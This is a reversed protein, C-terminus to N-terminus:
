ESDGVNIKITKVTPKKAPITVGLLGNKFNATIKNVDYEAHNIDFTYDRDSLDLGEYTLKGFLSNGLGNIKVHLSGETYEISVQKEDVGLADILILVSNDDAVYINYKNKKECKCEHEKEKAEMRAKHVHDEKPKNGTGSVKNASKNESVMEGFIANLFDDLSGEELYFGM